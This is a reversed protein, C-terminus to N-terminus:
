SVRIGAVLQFPHKPQFVLVRNQFTHHFWGFNPLRPCPTHVKDHVATQPINNASHDVEPYPHIVKALPASASSPSIDISLLQAAYLEGVESTSFPVHHFAVLCMYLGPLLAPLLISFALANVESFQLVPALSHAVSASLYHLM